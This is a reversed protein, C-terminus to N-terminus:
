AAARGGPATSGPATVTARARGASRAPDWGRIGERLNDRRYTLGLRWQLWAAVPHLTVLARLFRRAIRPLSYFESYLWDAGAQLEESTMRLPRIVCHRYDYKEWDRDAIRGSKEYRAFLPTGPLPTLIALQLADVKAEDLFALTRRFVTVDDRDFGAIIAAQVGIGRAHFRAILERYRESPNFTKKMEALTEASLSELGCFVGICGASAMLDLLAEDEAAEIPCQAIWHKKLPVLGQLLRISAEPDAIINDDVFMFNRPLDRIEDLVDEVPRMSYRGGHFATISCFECGHSCGRGAQVSHMTGYHRALRGQLERRPRRRAEPRCGPGRYIRQLRDRGLDELLRPWAEEAEGAVVADFHELAEQPMFTPHYGGAVVVRGRARFFDALEYARPALSTMFSIGIVDADTEWKMPEVNEDCLEIEHRDPTAAAVSLLSLLSFRLIKRPAPRDIAGTVRYKAVAPAVLLIKM